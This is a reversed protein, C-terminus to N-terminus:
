ARGREGDLFHVNSSVKVVGVGRTKAAAILRPLNRNLTPEGYNWLALNRVGPGLEGLAREFREPTMDPLPKIKGTGTPCTPCALNCHNTPEIMATSPGGAPTVSLYRTLEPPPTVRVGRRQAEARLAHVEPVCAVSARADSRLEPAL